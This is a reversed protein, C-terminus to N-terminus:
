YLAFWYTPTTRYLYVRQHDNPGGWGRREVFVVKYATGQGAPPINNPGAPEDRRPIFVLDANNGNSPNLYDRFDDRVDVGLDLTLIHTFRVSYAMTEGRHKRRYFSSFVSCPVAQAVLVANGGVVRQIDCTTSMVVPM